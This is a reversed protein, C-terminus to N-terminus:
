MDFGLDTLSIREHIHIARFGLEQSAKINHINDDLFITERPYIGSNKIVHEFADRDPKHYGIEFSYYIKKFLDHMSIGSADRFMKEFVPVHLACTNSLMYLDYRQSLKQLLTTRESPIGVLMATWAEDIKTDAVDLGSLRRVENRFDETDLKGTEYRFFLDTTMNEPYHMFIAPLGMEYFRQQTAQVNIDLIVGGLDFLINRIGSPQKM